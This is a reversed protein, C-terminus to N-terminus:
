EFSHEPPAESALTVASLMQEDAMLSHQFDQLVRTVEEVLGSTVRSMTMAHLFPNALPGAEHDHCMCASQMWGHMWEIM